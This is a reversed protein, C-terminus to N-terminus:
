KKLNNLLNYMGRRVEEGYTEELLKALKEGDKNFPPNARFKLDKITERIENIIKERVYEECKQALLKTNIDSIAKFYGFCFVANDLSNEGKPRKEKPLNDKIIQELTKNM